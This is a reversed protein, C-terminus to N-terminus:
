QQVEGGTKFEPSGEDRDPTNRRPAFRALDLNNMPPPPAHHLIKGWQDYECRCCPCRNRADVLDPKVGCRPCKTVPDPRKPALFIAGVVIAAAFILLLVMTALFLSWRDADSIDTTAFLM